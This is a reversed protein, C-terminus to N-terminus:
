NINEKSKRFLTEWNQQPYIIKSIVIYSYLYRERERNMLGIKWNEKILLEQYHIIIRFIM